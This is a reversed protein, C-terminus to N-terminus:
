PSGFDCARDRSGPERQYRPGSRAGAHGPDHDRAFNRIAMRRRSEDGPGGGGDDVVGSIDHDCRGRRPRPRFDLQAAGIRDWVAAPAREARAAANDFRHTRRENRIETTFICDATM